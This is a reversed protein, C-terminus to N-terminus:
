DQYTERVIQLYQCNTQKSAEQFSEVLVSFCLSGTSIKKRQKHFCWYSLQVWSSTDRFRFVSSLLAVRYLKNQRFGLTM